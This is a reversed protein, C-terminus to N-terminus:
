FKLNGKKWEVITMEAAFAFLNGKAIEELVKLSEKEYTNLLYRASWSRVSTNKHELLVKMKEFGNQSKIHEYAKVINAYATNAIKSNAIESTAIGHIKSYGIFDDIANEVRLYKM